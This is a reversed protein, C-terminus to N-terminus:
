HNYYLTYDTRETRQNLGLSWDFDLISLKSKGQLSSRQLTCGHTTWKAWKQIVSTFSFCDPLRSGWNFSSCRESSLTILSAAFSSVCGVEHTLMFIDTSNAFPHEYNNVWVLKREQSRAQEYYASHRYSRTGARTAIFHAFKLRFPFELIRAAGM